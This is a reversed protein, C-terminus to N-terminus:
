ARGASLRSWMVARFIRTYLIHIIISLCIRTVSAGSITRRAILTCQAVIFIATLTHETDFLTEFYKRMQTKIKKCRLEALYTSSVFYDTGPNAACARVHKHADHSTDGDIRADCLGCFWHGCNCYVAACGDFDIYISNCWPCTTNLVRDEFHAVQSGRQDGETSTTHCLSEKWLNFIKVPLQRPDMESGMGCPCKLLNHHRAYWPWCDLCIGHMGCLLAYGGTTKCVICKPCCVQCFTDIDDISCPQSKVKVHFCDGRHGCRGRGNKWM